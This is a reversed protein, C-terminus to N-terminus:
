SLFLSLFFHQSSSASFSFIAPPSSLFFTSLFLFACCRRHCPCHHRHNKLFSGWFCPPNWENVDMTVWSACSQLSQRQCHYLHERKHWFITDTHCHIYLVQLLRWSAAVRRFTQGELEGSYVWAAAEWSESTGSYGVCMFCMCMSWCCWCMHNRKQTVVTNIYATTGINQLDRNDKSCQCHMMYRSCGMVWFFCDCEQWVTMPLVCDEMVREKKLPLSVAFRHLMILGSLFNWTIFELEVIM